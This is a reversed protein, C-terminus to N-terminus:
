CKGRSTLEKCCSRWNDFLSGEFVQRLLFEPTPLDVASVSRDVVNRGGLEIGQLLNASEEGM